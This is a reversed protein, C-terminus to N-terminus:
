DVLHWSISTGGPSCMESGTENHIQNGRQGQYAGNDHCLCGNSVQVRQLQMLLCLVHMKQLSSPPWSWAAYCTMGFMWLLSPLPIMPSYEVSIKSHQLWRFNQWLHTRLSIVCVVYIWEVVCLYSLGWCQPDKGVLRLTFPVTLMHGFRYCIGLM